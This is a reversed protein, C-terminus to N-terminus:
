DLDNTWAPNWRPATETGRSATLNVVTGTSLERRHLEGDGLRSESWIMYAGDSSVDYLFAGDTGSLAQQSASGDLPMSFLATTSESAGLKERFFLTDGDASIVPRAKKPGVFEIPTGVTLSGGTSIDVPLLYVTSLVPEGHLYAIQTQEGATAGDLDNSWSVHSASSDGNNPRFPRTPLTTVDGTAVEVVKIEDEAWIMYAIYRGDPSWDIGGKFHEVGNPNEVLKTLGSGDSKVMYLVTSGRFAIWEGDRSWALEQITLNLGAVGLSATTAGDSSMLFLEDKPLNKVKGGQGRGIYVIAPNTLEGGGGGGGGNGNGGKGALAFGVLLVIAILLTTVRTM